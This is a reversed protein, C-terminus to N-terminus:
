ARRRGILGGIAGTVVSSATGVALLSAPVDGLAVSVAIGIFACLGGATGGGAAALRASGPEASGPEASGPEARAARWGVLASIGMGGIAFADRIAPVYHGAVVMAIQLGAGILTERAVIRSNM